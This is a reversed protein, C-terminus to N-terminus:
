AGRRPDATPAAPAAVEVRAMRAAFREVDDRMADVGDVFGAVEQKSVVQRTEERLYEAVDKLLRDGAYGAARGARRALEGLGHAVPDGTASGGLARSLRDEWDFELGALLARLDRILTADGEVRIGAPLTHGPKALAGIFAPISGALTADVQAAHEARLMLREGEACMYLTLELENLRVAVVRGDLAKVQDRSRLRAAVLSDLVAQMPALMAAPLEM